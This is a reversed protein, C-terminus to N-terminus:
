HEDEEYDIQINCNRLTELTPYPYEVRACNINQHEKVFSLITKKIPIYTRLAEDVAIHSYESKIFLKNTKNGFITQYVPFSLLKYLTCDTKELLPIDILIKLHENDLLVTTKSVQIIDELSYNPRKTPIFGEPQHDQIDRLVPMLQKMSILNQHMFGKKTLRIIELMKSGIKIHHLLQTRLKSLFENLDEFFNKHAAGQHAEKILSTLNNLREGM